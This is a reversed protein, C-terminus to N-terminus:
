KTVSLIFLLFALGMRYFIFPYLKNNRVFKLMFKIAFIGVLFSSVFGMSMPALDAASFYELSTILKYIGAGMVVPISVLFSFMTAEKRSLGFIMGASITSGSRSVGPLLSFVQFLGVKFSKLFSIEDKVVLRKKLCKEGFYMFASGLVLFIIVSSLGRFVDEFYKEFLLGIIGVPVSAILVKLGLRGERSYHRVSTKKKVVDHFLSRLIDNIDGWFFVLLSM